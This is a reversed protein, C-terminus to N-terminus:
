LKAVHISTNFVATQTDLHQNWELRKIHETLKKQHSEIQSISSNSLREVLHAQSLQHLLNLCELIEPLLVQLVQKQHPRLKDFTIDDWDAVRMNANALQDVLMLVSDNRRLLADLEAVGIDVIAMVATAVANLQALGMGVNAICRVVKLAMSLKPSVELSAPNINVKAADFREFKAISLILASRALKKKSNATPNLHVEVEGSLEDLQLGGQAIRTDQFLKVHKHQAFLKIDLTASRNSIFIFPAPNKNLFLKYPAINSAGDISLVAYWHRLKELPINVTKIYTIEFTIKEM